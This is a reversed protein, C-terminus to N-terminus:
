SPKLAERLGQIFLSAAAAPRDSDGVASILASGVIVGDALRGVLRAQEPSSVGFGVALPTRAKARAREVFAQLDASLASRAGTMMATM